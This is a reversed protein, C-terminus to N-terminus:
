EEVALEITFTPSAPGCVTVTGVPPQADDGKDNFEGSSMIVEVNWSATTDDGLTLGYTAQQTLVARKERLYDNHSIYLAQSNAPTRINVRYGILPSMEYAAIEDWQFEIAGGGGSAGPLARRKTGNEPFKLNTVQYAQGCSPTATSTPPEATPPEPPATPQPPQTPARTVPARTRTPPVATPEPANPTSTPELTATAPGPTVTVSIYIIWPTQTPAVEAVRTRTPAADNSNCAIGAIALAGLSALGIIKKVNVLLLSGWLIKQSLARRLRIESKPHDFM